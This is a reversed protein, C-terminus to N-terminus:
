NGDHSIAQYHVSAIHNFRTPLSKKFFKIQRLFNNDKPPDDVGRPIPADGGAWVDGGGRGSKQM